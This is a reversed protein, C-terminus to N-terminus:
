FNATSTLTQSINSTIIYLFTLILTEYENWKGNLLECKVILEIIRMMPKETMNHILPEPTM